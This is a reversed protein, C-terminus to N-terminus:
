GKAQDIENLVHLLAQLASIAAKAILQYKLPLIPVWAAATNIAILLHEAAKKADSKRPKKAPM